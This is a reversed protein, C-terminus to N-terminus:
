HLEIRATNLAGEESESAWSEVGKFYLGAPTRVGFCVTPSTFFSLPKEVLRVLLIRNIAKSSIHPAKMSLEDAQLLVFQEETVGTLAETDFKPAARVVDSDFFATDIFIDGPEPFPNSYVDLKTGPSLFRLLLPPLARDETRILFEECLFKRTTPHEKLVREVEPRMPNMEFTIEKAKISKTIQFFVRTAACAYTEDTYRVGNRDYKRGKKEVLRRVSCGGNSDEVFSIRYPKHSNPIGKKEPPIYYINLEVSNEEPDDDRLGALFNM